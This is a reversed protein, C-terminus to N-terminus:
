LKTLRNSIWESETKIAFSNVKYFWEPYIKVKYFVCVWNLLEYKVFIINLESIYWNNLICLLM